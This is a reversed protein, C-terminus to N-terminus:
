AFPHLSADFHFAVVRGARPLWGPTRDLGARRAPLRAAELPLVLDVHSSTLFLRGPSRLVDELPTDGLAARLRYRLFPLVHALWPRIGAPVLAALPGDLPDRPARHFARRRLGAGPVGLSALLARARTAGSAHTGDADVEAVPVGAESWVRLRGRRRAWSWRPAAGADEVLDRIWGRPLVVGDRGSVGAGPPSGPTRGDLVALADWLRDRRDSERGPLLGRAVLELLAWPGITGSRTWAQVAEEVELADLLNLLFLVGGLETARGPEHGEHVPRSPRAAGASRPGEETPPPGPRPRTSPGEHPGPGPTPEGPVGAAAEGATSTRRAPGGRGEAVSGDSGDTGVRGVGEPGPPEPGDVGDGRHAARGPEAADPGHPHGHSPSGSGPAPPPVPGPDHAPGGPRDSPRRPGAVAGGPRPGEAVQGAVAARFAPSRAWSPARHLALGLLLLERGARPLGDMGGEPVLRGPWDAPLAAVPGPGETEHRGPGRGGAPRTESGTPGPRRGGPGEPAAGGEVGHRRRVAALVVAAGAEGLTRMAPGGWGWRVLHDLVAPVRAAEGRLAETLPAGAFSGPRSRRLAPPWWWGDRGGQLGDAVGCALWEAPDEFVLAAADSPVRGRRPRAAARGVGDLHERAARAWAERRGPELGGAGSLEGPVAVALSRVVLVASPPLSAPRLDAGDLLRGMRLRWPPRPAGPPPPAARVRMRHVTLDSAGPSV